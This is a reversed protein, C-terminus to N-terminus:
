SARWRSTSIMPPPSDTDFSNWRCSSSFGKSSSTGGDFMTLADATPRARKDELQPVTVTAALASRCIGSGAGFSEKFDQWNTERAVGSDEKSGDYWLVTAEEKPMLGWTVNYGIFFRKPLYKVIAREDFAKSAFSRKLSLTHWSMMWQFGLGSGGARTRAFGIGCHWEGWHTTKRPWGTTRLLAATLSSRKANRATPPSRVLQKRGGDVSVTEARRRNLFWLQVELLVQPPHLRM